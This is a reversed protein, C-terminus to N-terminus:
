FQAKCKRCIRMKDEKAKENQYFGVRTPQNCKPCVLSIKGMALSRPLDVIGGPKGEGRPKLHKKYLNVGAVLARGEKVLIKEVTGTKGRDKGTNVMVKDGKKIKIKM